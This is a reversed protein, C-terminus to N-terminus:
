RVTKGSGLWSGLVEILTRNRLGAEAENDAPDAAKLEEACARLHRRAAPTMKWGKASEAQANGIGLIRQSMFESHADFSRAESTRAPEPLPVDGTLALTMRGREAPTLADLVARRQRGPLARLEEALRDLTDSVPM